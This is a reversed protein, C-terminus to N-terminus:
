DKLKLQQKVFEIYAQKKFAFWDQRYPSFDILNKFNQFPKRRSLQDFIRNKFHSDDLSDAFDEMVRFGETSDMKEFREYNGWDNDIKDITEQWPEPDYYLSDNDPFYEIEGTQRHYFCVMGMELNEAIEAIEEETLTM